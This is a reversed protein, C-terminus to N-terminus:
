YILTDELDTKNEENPDQDRLVKNDVIHIITVVKILCEGFVHRWFFDEYFLM